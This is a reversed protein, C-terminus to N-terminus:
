KRLLKRNKEITEKNKAIIEKITLHMEDYNTEHNNKLSKDLHPLSPKTKEFDM